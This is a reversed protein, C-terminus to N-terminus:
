LWTGGTIAEGTYSLTLTGVPTYNSGGDISTEYTITQPNGATYTITEKAALLDKSYIVEEANGDADYSVAFDWGVGSVVEDFTGKILSTWDGADFAGAPVPAPAAYLGGGQAVIDGAAYDATESFIRIPLLKIPGLPGQIELSLDAFNVFPTGEPQGSVSEGTNYARAFQTRQTM